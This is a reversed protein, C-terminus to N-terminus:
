HRVVQLQGGHDPRPNINPEGQILTLFRTMAQEGDLMGEDMNVDVIQAGNDVQQQAVTLAAEYDGKLILKKFQPSGTINSREGVNVFNVEPRWTFLQTGNLRTLPEIKPLARPPLGKVAEAIARIHAPTTGCCGGVINLWGNEAWERAAPALSEPTEPFGTELM